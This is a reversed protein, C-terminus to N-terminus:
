KKWKKEIRESIDIKKLFVLIEKPVREQWKGKEKIQARIKTANYISKKFFPVPSVKKSAKQMLKKVLPNNSYVIDYKPVSADVKAVWKENDPVDHIACLIFPTMWDADILQAKIMRMREKATLPNKEEFSKQASGIAIIIRDSRKAIWKVAALHGNHFPQFRGIFLAVPKKESM